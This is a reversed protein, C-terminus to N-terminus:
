EVNTLTKIATKMEKVDEMLQKLHYEKERSNVSLEDDVHDESYLKRYLKLLESELNLVRMMYDLRNECHVFVSKYLESYKDRLEQKTLNQSLYTPDYISM